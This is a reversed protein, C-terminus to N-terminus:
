VGPRRPLEARASGAPELADRERSGDASRGGDPSHAAKGAKGLRGVVLGALVAGGLFAGPRRRGFDRLDGLMDDLSNEALYNAARHGQGATRVTLSRAPSDGSAGQALGELDDAWQRVADALRDTQEQGEDMLRRKLDHMASDAQRRAEGAVEKAQEAATGAVEGAAQGAQSTTASAQEKATRGVQQAREAERM